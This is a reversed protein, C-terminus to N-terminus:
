ESGPEEFNDYYTFDKTILGNEISFITCIPLEFKSNDSATGSSVFEVIVHNPGSTYTQIIQDKLDPFTTALATYKEITQQKTQKVIGTGLSPDKFEATDSYLNAMKEWEHKNFHNFYQAILKENETTTMTKGNQHNCACCAFFIFSCTAFLKTLQM